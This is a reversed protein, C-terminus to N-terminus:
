ECCRIGDYTQVTAPPGWVVGDPLVAGCASEDTNLRSGCVACRIDQHLPDYRCTNVYEGVNGDMDYIADFPSKAGHCTAVSGVDQVGQTVFRRSATVCADNRSPTATHITRRGGQSCAYMWEFVTPDNFQAATM